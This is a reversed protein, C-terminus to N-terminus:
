YSLVDIIVECMVNLMVVLINFLVHCIIIYKWRDYLLNYVYMCYVICELVWKGQISRDVEFYWTTSM